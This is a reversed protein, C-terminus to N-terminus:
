QAEALIESVIMGGSGADATPDMMPLEDLMRNLQRTADAPLEHFRLLMGDEGDDRHVRATVVLPVNESSV